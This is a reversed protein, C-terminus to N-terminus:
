WLDENLVRLDVLTGPLLSNTSLYAHGAIFSVLNSVNPSMLPGATSDTMMPSLSHVWWLAWGFCVSHVVSMDSICLLASLKLTM